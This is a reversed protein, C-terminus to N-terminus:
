EQLSALQPLPARQGCPCPLGSLTSGVLRSQTMPFKLRKARGSGLIGFSIYLDGGVAVGELRFDCDDNEIGLVLFELRVKIESVCFNSTEFGVDGVVIAVEFFSGFDFDVICLATEADRGTACRCDFENQPLSRLAM